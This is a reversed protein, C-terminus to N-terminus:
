VLHERGETEQGAVGGTKDDGAVQALDAVLDDLAAVRERYERQWGEPVQLDNELSIRMKVLSLRVRYVAEDARRDLAALEEASM